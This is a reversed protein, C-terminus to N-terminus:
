RITSNVLQAYSFRDGETMLRGEKTVNGHQPTQELTFIVNELETDTDSVTVIDLNLPLSGGYAVRLPRVTM